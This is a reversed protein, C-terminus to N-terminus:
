ENDTTGYASGTWGRSVQIQITRGDPHLLGRTSTRATETLRCAAQALLLAAISASHLALRTVQAYVRRLEMTGDISDLRDSHGCCGSIWFDVLYVLALALALASRIRRSRSRPSPRVAVVWSWFAYTAEPVPFPSTTPIGM